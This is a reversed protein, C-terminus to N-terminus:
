KANDKKERPPTVEVAGISEVWFRVAQELADSQTTEQMTCVVRFQLALEKPIFGSVQSYNPDERKGGAMPETATGM